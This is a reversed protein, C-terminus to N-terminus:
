YMQGTALPACDETGLPTGHHCRSLRCATFRLGKIIGFRKVVEFSYASCSPNFRCRVYKALHPSVKQQYYFVLKCYVRGALQAEPARTSDLCIASMTFVAILLSIIRM